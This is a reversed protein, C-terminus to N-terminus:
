FMRMQTETYTLPDLELHAELNDANLTPSQALQRAQRYKLFQWGQDFIKQLSPNQQLKYMVLNVRGGPIVIIGQAPYPNKDILFKGLLASASIYFTFKAVLNQNFWTCQYNDTNISEITFGLKKGLESITEGMLSIEERRKSPEDQERLTWGIELNEGYSELCEYILAFEPTMEGPFQSQTGAIIEQLSCHPNQILHNAVEIEVKDALPTNAKSDDVLWWKGVDLSKESGGFRLFGHQYDLGTQIAQQIQSYSEAPTEETPLLKQQALKELIATNLQLYNSPEGREILYDLGSKIITNSLITSNFTSKPGPQISKWYLKTLKEDSNLVVDKLQFDSKYASLLIATTFGPEAEGIVGLIPFNDKIAPKLSELAAQIATTHWAWDYRRRRLVSKFRDVAEHGWLWGAWLASLSWFAQNPRPFATLVAALEIESIQEALDRIRGEFICIGGKQPPLVPWYTISVAEDKTALQKVATELALWINNERYIPPITLQRPRERAVPYPWLTNAQDFASLLIAALYQDQEPSLNLVDLKNVLTLLAYVARPPYVNLAEEVHVRDPDNLPAVRELARSYHLGGSVFKSANQGDADTTPFEGQQKCHPCNIIRAYPAAADREWLFAEAGIIASCNPCNTRYLASIHPELREDRIRIAALASLITNLGAGTPPNAAVEILLRAIPNNATVIVRSGSQAAEVSLNPAAGFPDLIIRGELSHSKIWGTAIGPSLPPLFRGLIKQPESRQTPLTSM